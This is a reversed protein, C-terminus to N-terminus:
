FFTHQLLHKHLINKTELANKRPKYRVKQPPDLNIGTFLNQDIYNYLTHQSCGDGRQPFSLYAFPSPRQKLLPSILKDLRELSEPTQNIGSRSSSNIEHYADDAYKPPMTKVSFHVANAAANLAIPRASHAVM